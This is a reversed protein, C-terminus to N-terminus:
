DLTIKQAATILNEFLFYLNLPGVGGPSPTYYLVHNKAENQDFDGVLKGNERRLGIGILICNKKLKEFPIEIHKGTALIIIDAKTFLREPNKTSTDLVTPEIKLKKLAEIVPKGATEGKGVILIAQHSLWKQFDPVNLLQSTHTLFYKVALWVPVEFLSDKRFGDIDKEKSISQIVRETDIWTPFPRQVILGHVNPNQDLKIVAELVDSTNNPRLNILRATINLIKALKIKQGVYAKWTAEDGLTVIAICPIIGKSKLNLIKSKLNALLQKQLDGGNIEM